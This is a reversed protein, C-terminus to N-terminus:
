EEQFYIRAMSSFGCQPLAGLLGGVFPGVKKSKTLVEKNKHSLKHEIFELLVFTIFLYPLLKLTDILGDMIVDMM